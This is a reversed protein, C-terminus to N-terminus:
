IKATQLAKEDTTYAQPTGRFMNRPFQDLLLILALCGQPTKAWNDLKEACALKYTQEYNKRIKQDLELNSQFWFSKAKGYDASTPDGFWFLLITTITISNM